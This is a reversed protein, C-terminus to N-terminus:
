HLYTFYTHTHHSAREKEREISERNQSTREVHNENVVSMLGRESRGDITWVKNGGEDERRGREKKVRGQGGWCNNSGLVM